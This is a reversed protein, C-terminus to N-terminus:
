DEEIRISVLKDFLNTAVSNSECLIWGDIASKHSETMVAEAFGNRENVRTLNYKASSHDLRSRQLIVTPSKRGLSVLFPLDQHLTRKGFKCFKSPSSKIQSLRFHARQVRPSTWHTKRHMSQLKQVLKSALPHSTSTPRIEGQQEM